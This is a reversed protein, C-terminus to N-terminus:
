EPWGHRAAGVRRAFCAHAAFNEDCLRCPFLPLAVPDQAFDRLSRREGRPLGACTPQFVPVRAKRAAVVAAPESPPGGGAKGERLRPERVPM